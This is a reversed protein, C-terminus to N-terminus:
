GIYGEKLPQHLTKANLKSVLQDYGDCYNVSYKNEDTGNFLKIGTISTFTLLKFHSAGRCM